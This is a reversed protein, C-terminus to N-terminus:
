AATSIAKSAKSTGSKGKPTRSGDDPVIRAIEALTSRIEDEIIQKCLGQKTELALAPALKSPLVLLRGRIIDGLGGVVEGHDSISITNEQADALELEVLMAEAHLKRKRADDLDLVKGGGDVRSQLYMVYSKINSFFPYRGREEKILIGEKVMQQIRRESLNLVRSLSGIPVTQENM